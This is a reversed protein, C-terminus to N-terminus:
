ERVSTLDYRELMDMIFPTNSLKLVGGARDYQVTTKLASAVAGLDKMLLESSLAKWLEDVMAPCNSTPFLDDVHTPLVCWRDGDRKIYTAPDTLLSRFGQKELRVKLFKEWAFSADPLGYLTKRLRWVIGDERFGEPPLVYLEVREDIPSYCFAQSVDWHGMQVEPDSVMMSLCIRFTKINMVFASSEFYDVGQRAQNGLVVCRAKAGITEGSVDTKNEFVTMIPIVSAGPQLSSRRVKEFTGNEWLGDLEAVLAKKYETANPDRLM